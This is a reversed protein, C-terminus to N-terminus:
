ARGPWRWRPSAAMSEHALATRGRPRRLADARRGRDGGPLTRASRESPSRSLAPAATRHRQTAARRPRRGRVLGVVLRHTADTVAVTGPAAAAQVRAAINPADGFVEAENGAGRGIVVTGSDIGVRTALKVQGPQENLKAIADLIALGARAAREADNDHAAPWGFYAMVGDGLYKAVHGDFRTIAAAAARHFGALTERWEEPDLQASIATSGVLDCFLVTLHRREGTPASVSPAAETPTSPAPLRSASETLSAGCRGCFKARPPNDFGCELCHREFASGCEICFRTSEPNECQCNPCRM